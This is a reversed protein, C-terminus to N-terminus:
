TGSMWAEAILCAAVRDLAGKSVRRRLFGSRRGAAIESRAAESTLTEDVTEVPRHYRAELAAAFKRAARAVQETGAGTPMGVVFRAPAWDAVIRDLEEWPLGAATKLTTLPSATRTQLNATAIGLRRFGFDFALLVDKDGGTM